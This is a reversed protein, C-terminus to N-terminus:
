KEKSAGSLVTCITAVISCGLVVYLLTPYLDAFNSLISLDEFILALAFEAFFFASYEWVFKELIVTVIMLILPFLKAGKSKLLSTGCAFFLISNAIAKIFEGDPKFGGLESSKVVLVVVGIVSILGIITAIIGAVAAAIRSISRM